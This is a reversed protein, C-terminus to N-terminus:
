REIYASPTKDGTLNIAPFLGRNRLAIEFITDLEDYSFHIVKAKTNNYIDRLRDAALHPENAITYSAM